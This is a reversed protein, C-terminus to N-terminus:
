TIIDDFVMDRWEEGDLVEPRAFEDFRFVYDGVISGMERCCKSIASRHVELVRAAESASPYWCWTEADRRRAWVPKSTIHNRIATNRRQAHRINQSRTMYELNEIHNNARDGDKHNVEMNLPVSGEGLFRRAVLRHVRFRRKVGNCSITAARYGSPTLSGWPVNAFTNRVRVHSSVFWTSLREDSDPHLAQAWREGPLDATFIEKYQFEYGDLQSEGHVCCARIHRANLGLSRAAELVSPFVDWATAGLKRWVVPRGQSPLVVKKRMAYFYIMNQSRPAYLLNDVHSNWPTGDEHHVDFRDTPPPGFFARAVLRHVLRKKGGICTKCYGSVDRYGYSIIGNLNRLRGYSSVM